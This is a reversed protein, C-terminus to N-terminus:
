LMDTYVWFLMCFGIFTFAQAIAHTWVLWTRQALSFLKKLPFLIAGTYSRYSAYNGWDNLHIAERMLMPISPRQLGKYNWFEAQPPSWRLKLTTTWSTFVWITTPINCVPQREILFKAFWWLIWLLSGMYFASLTRSTQALLKQTNGPRVFFM